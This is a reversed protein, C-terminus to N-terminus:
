HILFIEPFSYGAHIGSSKVFFVVKQEREDIVSSLPTLSYRDLAGHLKALLSKCGQFGSPEGPYALKTVLDSSIFESLKELDPSTQNIYDLFGNARQRLEERLDVGTM